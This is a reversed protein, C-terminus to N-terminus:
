TRVFSFSDLIGIYLIKVEADAVRGDDPAEEAVRRVVGLGFEQRECEGVRRRWVIPGLACRSIRAVFSCVGLGLEPSGLVGVGNAGYGEGMELAGHLPLALGKEGSPPYSVGVRRVCPLIERAVSRGGFGGEWACCQVVQECLSRAVVVKCLVMLAKPM